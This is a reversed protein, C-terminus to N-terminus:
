PTKPMTTSSGTFCMSTWLQERSWPFVLWMRPITNVLTAVEPGSMTPPMEVGCIYGDSGGTHFVRDFHIRRGEKSLVLTQGESTVTWGAVMAKTLSFLQDM